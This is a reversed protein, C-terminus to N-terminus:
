GACRCASGGGRDLKHVAGAYGICENCGEM